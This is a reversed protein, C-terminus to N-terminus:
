TYFTEAYCKECYITETAEPPFATAIPSKCHDCARQWLKRARRSLFRRRHRCEPCHEPFPLAHEAYFALEQTILQFSRACQKCKQATVNESSQKQAERDKWRLGQKLVEEKELPYYENALTENYAHPSNKAPFFSGWEATQVGGDASAAARMHEIIKNKLVEYDEASYRKNFIVYEGHTVGVCGFLHHSSYCYQNYLSDYVNRGGIQFFVNNLNTFGMSQYVLASDIGGYTCDYLTHSNVGTFDCYASDKLGIGDFCFYVNDCGDMYDGVSNNNNMGFISRHISKSAVQALNEKIEKIKEPTLILAAKRKEYEEKTLQENMWVYEKQNLNISAFCNTSNRCNLLFSSEHCKFCNQSFLLRSCATCDVCEYCLECQQAKTVDMCDKAQIAGHSYYVNESMFCLAMYCSKNAIGYNTYQCNESAPDQFLAFHPVSRELEAFQEFFPRSFDFDRGYAYADFTDGWWCTNCYVPVPSENSYCAVISKKCKECDRHYLSRENRWSIREKHRCKFCKKPDPLGAQALFAHENEIVLFAETCESCTQM